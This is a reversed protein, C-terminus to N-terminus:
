IWLLTPAIISTILISTYMPAIVLISNIESCSDGQIFARKYPFHLDSPLIWQMQVFGPCKPQGHLQLNTM